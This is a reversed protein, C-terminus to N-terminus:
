RGCVGTLLAPDGIDVGAGAILDADVPALKTHTDSDHPTYVCLWELRERACFDTDIVQAYINLTTRADRHGAQRQVYPVPKGYALLLSIFTRRLSHPTLGSSLPLLGRSQRGRNAERVAPALVRKRLNDKDRRRGTATPFVFDDLGVSPVALRWRTLEEALRDLIRVDRDAADTKTGAIRLVRHALDVDRWRLNGLESVRLGAFALTAVVARRPSAERVDLPIRALRSATSLAIELEVAVEALTRGQQRLRQVQGARERTTPSNARDIREAARILDIVEDPMLWTRRPVSVKLRRRRGSAPNAAILEHEMADSLINSLLDITMNISRNSLQRVPRGQADCVPHQREQRRVIENREALKAERYRDVLRRDIEALRHRAFFPLLHSVLRWEYDKITNPRLERRKRTLWESAYVHFTIEASAPDKSTPDQWQGLTIAAKRRELDELAQARTMGERSYGLVVNRRDGAAVTIKASYVISGDSLRRERLQADRPRTM